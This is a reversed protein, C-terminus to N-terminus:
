AFTWARNLRYGAVLALASALIQAVIYHWGLTTGAWVVIASLAANFAAVLLFRPLASAHSRRSRFTLTRNGGYSVLAGICAGAAAATWPAVALAESLTVLVVYHAATAAAGTVTYCLFPM